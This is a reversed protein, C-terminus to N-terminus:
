LFTIWEIKKISDSSYPNYSVKSIYGIKEFAKNIKRKNGKCENIVNSISKLDDIVLQLEGRDLEFWEGNIRKTIWKNHIANEMVDICDGGYEIYVVELGYPSSTSLQTLRKRLDNTKGIKYVDDINIHKIVYILNAKSIIEM